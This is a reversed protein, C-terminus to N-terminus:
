FLHHRITVKVGPHAERFKVFQGWNFSKRQSRRNIWKFFIDTAQHVFKNVGDSNLSVGYYEVHGRLKSNFTNWLPLLRQKDKNQRCWLKVKRLKSHFRTRATKVAVHVHGKRSRRIYFTFGLYDFTGQKDKPFARKDFKVVKTKEANLELGYKSLRQKLAKLVKVSDSRYRCCVVQDLTFSHNPKQGIMGKEDWRVNLKGSYPPGVTKM